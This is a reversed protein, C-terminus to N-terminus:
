GKISVRVADSYVKIDVTRGDMTLTQSQMSTCLIEDLKDSQTPLLWSYIQKMAQHFEADSSYMLISFQNNYVSALASSSHKWYYAYGATFGQGAPYYKKDTFGLGELRNNLESYSIGTGSGISSSSQQTTWVGSSNLYYGDITTDHAMKGNNYLYYWNGGDQIWGTKMVGNNDFYYWEGDLKAWGTYKRGQVLYSFTGNNLKWGNQPDDSVISKIDEAQSADTQNGLLKDIHVGDTDNLEYGIYKVLVERPILFDGDDTQTPQKYMPWENKQGTTQDTIEVTQLPVSSGNVYIYGDDAYIDVKKYNLYVEIGNDLEKITAGMSKALENINVCYQGNDEIYPLINSNVVQAFATNIPMASTAILITAIIATIKQKIM